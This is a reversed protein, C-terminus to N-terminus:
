LAPNLVAYLSRDRQEAPTAVHVRRPVRFVDVENTLREWLLPSRAAFDPGTPDVMRYDNVWVRDACLREALDRARHPDGSWVAGSLGYRSDNAVALAEADSRVPIVTLVPGFVEDRAVAAAPDVDALVTPRYYARADLGPGLEAPDPSGGGCVLRAGQEVAARVVRHIGRVHQRSVLPGLDTRADLPDGLLLRESNKAVMELFTDYVKEHVLSRSGAMCIQGNHFFIGWLTGSVARALDADDLVINASKGGLDLQVRTGARAAVAAVKAGVEDSGTFAVLDVGPHGALEEGVGGGPGLVVNLVGPPLGCEHAIRALEVTTVSTFSAPKVVCTNGGAIVAAIRWSALLLPFNWPLIAGVVGVPHFRLYGGTPPPEPPETDTLREAWWACWDFAAQAGPVDIARAKRITGGSDRAELEALRDGEEGLRAAIRRLVRARESRSTTPWPGHDFAARAARVARDLDPSGGRALDALHRGTAPEYSAFTEGSASDTAAGDIYMPYREPIALAEM